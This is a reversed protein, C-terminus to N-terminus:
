DHSLSLSYHEVVHVFPPLFLYLRFNKLSFFFSCPKKAGDILTKQVMSRQDKAMKAIFRKIKVNRMM